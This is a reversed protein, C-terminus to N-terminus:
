NKCQGGNAAIIENIVGVINCTYGSPCPIKGVAANVMLQVDAANVLGDGTLDCRNQIAIVVPAGPTVGNVAVGLGGIVAAAFLGSVNLTAGTAGFTIPITAVPGDAMVAQSGASICTGNAPNCTVADGAASWASAAVPTGMTAGSPIAVTWQLATVSQGASGSMSVTITANGGAAISAPGTVTVTTTQGYVAAALFIFLFKLKNM